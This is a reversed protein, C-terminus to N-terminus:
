SVRTRDQSMWSAVELVPGGVVEVGDASRRCAAQSVTM